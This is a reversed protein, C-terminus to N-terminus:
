ASRPGTASWPVRDDRPVFTDSPRIVHEFPLTPVDDAAPHQVDLDTEPRDVAPLPPVIWPDPPPPALDSPPLETRLAVHASAPTTPRDAQLLGLGTLALAGFVACHVALSGAAGTFPASLPPPTRPLSSM